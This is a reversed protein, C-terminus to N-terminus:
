YLYSSHKSLNLKDPKVGKQRQKGKVRARLLIGVSGILSADTVPHMFNELPGQSRATNGTAQLDDELWFPSSRNDMTGHNTRETEAILLRGDPDIWFAVPDQILPETALTATKFGEPANM